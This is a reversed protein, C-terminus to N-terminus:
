WFAAQLMTWLVGGFLSLAVLFAVTVTRRDQPGGDIIRSIFYGVLLCYLALLALIPVVGTEIPAPCRPSLDCPRNALEWTPPLIFCVLLLSSAVAGLVRGRTWLRSPDANMVCITGQRALTRLPDDDASGPPFRGNGLAAFGGISIRSFDHFDSTM